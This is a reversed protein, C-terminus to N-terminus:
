TNGYPRRWVPGRRSANALVVGAGINRREAPLRHNLRRACRRSDIRNFSLLKSWSTKAIRKSRWTKEAMSLMVNRVPAAVADNAASENDGDWASACPRVNLGTCDCTSYVM